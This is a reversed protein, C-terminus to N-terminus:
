RTFICGTGNFPERWYNRHRKDFSAEAANARPLIIRKKGLKKADYAIALAGKIFRISGDLSFEGLFLTDELFATQYKWFVM